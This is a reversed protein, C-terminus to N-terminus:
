CQRRIKNYDESVSVKMPWDPSSKMKQTTPGIFSILSICPKVVPCISNKCGDESAETIRM